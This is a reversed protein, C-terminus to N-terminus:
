EEPQPPPRLNSRLSLNLSPKLKLNLNPKPSLSLRLPPSNNPNLTLRRLKPATSLRRSINRASEAYRVNMRPLKATM